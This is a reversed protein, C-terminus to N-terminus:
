RNVDVEVTPTQLSVKQAVVSETTSAYSADEFLYSNDGAIASTGAFLVTLLASAVIAKTNIKM